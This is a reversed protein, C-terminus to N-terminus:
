DVRWMDRGSQEEAERGDDMNESGGAPEPDHCASQLVQEIRALVHQVLNTRYHQKFVSIVGQDLPQCAASTNAPIFVLRVHRPDLKPHPGANDLLLAIRRGEGAMRENLWQLWARFIESTMWATRNAEWRAPLEGLAMRGFARPRM